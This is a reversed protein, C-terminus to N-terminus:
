NQFELSNSAGLGREQIMLGQLEPLSIRLDIQHLHFQRNQQYPSEDLKKIRVKSIWCHIGANTVEVDMLPPKIKINLHTTKTEQKLGISELM